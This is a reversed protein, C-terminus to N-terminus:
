PAAASPPPPAPDVAPHLPLALTRIRGVPARAQSGTPTAAAHVIPGLPLLCTARRQPSHSPDGPRARLLAPTNPARAPGVAMHSELGDVGRLGVLPQCLVQATCATCGRQARRLGSSGTHTSAGPPLSLSPPADPAPSLHRSSGLSGLTDWISSRFSALPRAPPPPPAQPSLAILHARQPHALGRPAAQSPALLMHSRPLLPVAPATPNQRALQPPAHQQQKKKKKLSYFARGSGGGGSGGLQVWIKNPQTRRSQFTRPPHPPLFRAPAFPSAGCPDSAKFPM